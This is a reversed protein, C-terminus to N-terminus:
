KLPIVFAGEGSKLTFEYTGGSINVTKREGGQWVAVSKIDSGFQATVKDSSDTSTDSVNVFMYANKKDSDSNKTEFIGVMTDQQCADIKVGDYEGSNNSTELNALAKSRTGEDGTKYMIDSWKYQMYIDELAHVETNVEKAWDYVQTYSQNEYDFICNNAAASENTGQYYYYIFERTGFALGSYIQYRLDKAGEISRLGTSDGSSQVFTRLEVGNNKCKNAILEYNSLYNKDREAKDDSGDEMFPYNDWSIYGLKTGVKELYTDIYGEYTGTASGFIQEWKTGLQASNKNIYSGYLNVFMEGGFGLSNKQATFYNYQKEIADMDKLYPEDFAFNGAYASHNVYSNGADFVNEIVTKFQEGTSVQKSSYANEDANSAGLGYFSWDKVLYSVGYKKAVDLAITASNETAVSRNQIDDATPTGSTTGPYGETMAIAKTFGAESLKEYASDLKKVDDSTVKRNVTPASYAAIEIGQNSQTELSGAQNTEVLTVVTNNSTVATINFIGKNLGNDFNDKAILKGDENYIKVDDIILKQGNWETKAGGFYLYYSQGDSPLKITYEFWKGVKETDLMNNGSAACGYIDGLEPSTVYNVGWWSANKPVYARFTMTSGGPYADNTIVNKGDKSDAMMLDVDLALAKNTKNVETTKLSVVTRGSSDTETIDFLGNKLGGNFTDKYTKNGSKITFNDMLLPETATCDGGKDAVFYIYYNNSDDPLTVTYEKWEGVSATMIQGYKNGSTWKYLDTDAKDTTWSIGWWSTGEPVFADFTVVSGGSYKDKTIFNMQGQVDSIYKQDIAVAQGKVEYVYNLRGYPAVDGKTYFSYIDEEEYNDAWKFEIKFSDDLGLTSLPISLQMKNGTMRYEAKGAEIWKGAVYKEVVLKDDTANNSNRNIVYEYQNYCGGSNGTSIFLSMCNANGFGKIDKVTEVYAYLNTGDTTMKMKSIDNQGSEDTYVIKQSSSGTEENQKIEKVTEQRVVDNGNISFICDTLGNDFGEEVVTDGSTIKFDDVLLELAEGDKPWEGKAGVIYVYYSQGDNPLTVSYDSWEGEKSPMAQGQGSTWKYLDVDKSDTTWSVAWWSAGKPVYARFSVTSGAPYAEKTIFSMPSNENLRNIKIAVMNNDTYTIGENSYGGASRNEIDSTYDQYHTSVKNWQNFSGNIDIGVSETDSATNLNTNTVFKGKYQKIYDVMQMYYDDGYGGNMPQIDSSNNMDANNELVIPQSNNDAEKRESIWENWSEIFITNKGSKIASEFEYAFNYGELVANKDSSNSYGDFSRTHNGTEGYFASYSMAAAVNKAVHVTYKSMDEVSETEYWLDSYETYKAKFTNVADTVKSTDTFAVKPVVFGQSKYKALTKLLCVLQNEYIKNETTDIAIFDIGADTLMQVDKAMVWEDNSFYYGFLPEGWWHYTGITGGGAATWLADSTAAEKNTSLINSVNYLKNDEGVGFHLFYRIGVKKNKSKEAVTMERDLEDTASYISTDNNIASTDPRYFSVIKETLFQRMLSLDTADYKGDNNIDYKAGTLSDNESKKLCVLDIIDVSGDGNLDGVEGTIANDNEAAQIDNNKGVYSTSLCMSVILLIAFFKKIMKNKM